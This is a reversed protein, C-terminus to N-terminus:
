PAIEQGIALRARLSALIAELKLDLGDRHADIYVREADVLRLVDSGGERFGARAAQRAIDVPVLLDKDTQLAREALAAATRLEADIEARAIRRAAEAELAAAREEGTARAVGDANRNFLPVPLAVAAVGTNMDSTRKYGGSVVPDPVARSRELALAAQAREHRRRAAVVEPHRAAAANALEPFDGTIPAPVRPEVLQAPEVDSPLGLRAALIACARGLDLWARVLQADVRAVEAEFKRLDAEAAYGEEVRRTMLAIVSSGSERQTGLLETLVRARVAALYAEAV